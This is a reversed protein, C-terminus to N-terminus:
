VAWDEACARDAIQGANILIYAASIWMVAAMAVGLGALGYPTGSAAFGAACTLTGAIATAYYARLHFLRGLPAFHLSVIAGISSWILHEARVRVCIWVALAILTTQGLITWTMRSVIYRKQAQAVGELQRLQSRAFGTRRRLRAAAWILGVAGGLELITGCASVGWHVLKAVMGVGLGIWFAGALALVTAGNSLGWLFLRRDM